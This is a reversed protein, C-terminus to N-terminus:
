PIIALTRDTWFPLASTTKIWNIGDASSWADNLMVGNVDHGSVVYIKNNYVYSTHNNRGNWPLISANVKSWNIGDLSSWVSNEIQGVTNDDVILFMKNNFVLLPATRSSNASPVNTTELTWNIGDLSSWADDNGEGKMIWMKGNFVTSSLWRRPSWPANTTVQTWNFGDPSSWVDNLSNLGQDPSGGMVWMKGGYSILAFSHRPGWPANTTITTWNVGDSSMWVNGVPVNGNWGGMIWFKGDFFIGSENTSGGQPTPGTKMWSVGDLTCWFSSSNQLFDVDKIIMSQRPKCAVTRPANITFPNDSSDANLLAAYPRVKIKYHSGFSFGNSSITSANPLIIQEQGDNLTVNPGRLLYQYQDDYLIQIDLQTGPLINCSKWTVTIQQGATYVENGNPSLVQIWPADTPNCRRALLNPDTAPRPIATLGLLLANRTMPGVDRGDGQIGNARQFAQVASVTKGLYNGSNLGTQLYGEQILFDQLKKVEINNMLGYSLNKTFTPSTSTSVQTATSSITTPTITKTTVTSTPIIVKATTTLNTTTKPLALPTGTANPDKLGLTADYYVNLRTVTINCYWSTDNVHIIEGGLRLCRRKSFDPEIDTPGVVIAPSIYDPTITMIDGPIDCIYRIFKGEFWHEGLTGGLRRCKRKSIELDTTDNTVVATTLAPTITKTTVTTESIPAVLKTATLDTSTTKLSSDTSLYGTLTLAGMSSKLSSLEQRLSALEAMLEEMTIAKAQSVGILLTLVLAISLLYKKM